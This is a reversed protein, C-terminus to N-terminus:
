GLKGAAEIAKGKARKSYEETMKLHKHGLMAQAYETGLEDRLLTAATHRLNHATFHPLKHLLCHRAITQSLTGRRIPFLRADPEDPKLYEALIRQARPGFYLTRSQGRWRNKHRVLEATWIPGSTDIIRTTVSLLEGPRAGTFLLLDVIDRTRKRLTTKILDIHEQPVDQRPPLDPAASDGERLGELTELATVIKVPVVEVSVGWRFIRRLRSVQKNIYKRTWGEAIMKDRSRRLRNPGFDKVPEEGYLEKLIRIVGLYCACETSQKGAADTYRKFQDAMFLLCLENVSATGITKAAEPVPEAIAPRSLRDILAAYERRSEPSNWPGLYYDKGGVSCRAQGSQKHLRYTPITNRPRPM